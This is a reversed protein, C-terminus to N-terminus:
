IDKKLAEKVVEYYLNLHLRISDITAQQTKKDSVGVMLVVVLDGYVLYYIRRGNLKKERFFLYGLPKGLFPNEVLKNEFKVIMEQEIKPLKEFEKEFTKTRFIKFKM